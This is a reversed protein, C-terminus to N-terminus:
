GNAHMPEVGRAAETAVYTTRHTQGFSRYGHQDIRVLGDMQLRRRAVRVSPENAGIRTALDNDNLDTASNVLESLIDQKLTAM